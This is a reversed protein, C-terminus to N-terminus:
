KITEFILSQKWVKSLIMEPFSDLQPWYLLKGIRSSFGFYNRPFPWFRLYNFMIKLNTLLVYVNQLFQNM